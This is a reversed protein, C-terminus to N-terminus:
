EQIDRRLFVGAGHLDEAVLRLYHGLGRTHRQSIGARIDEIYIHAARDPLDDFGSVARRQHLRRLKRPPYDLGDHGRDEPVFGIGADIGSTFRVSTTGSEDWRPDFRIKGLQNALDGEVREVFASRDRPSVVIQEAALPGAILSASVVVSLAFISLKNM